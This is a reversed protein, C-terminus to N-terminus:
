RVREVVTGGICFVTNGMYYVGLGFLLWKSKKANTILAQEDAFSDCIALMRRMAGQTPALLVLDDAYALAGCYHQWYFL